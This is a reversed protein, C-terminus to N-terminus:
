SDCEPIDPSGEAASTRWGGDSLDSAAMVLCNQASNRVTIITQVDGDMDLNLEPIRCCVRLLQGSDKGLTIKYAFLIQKILSGKRFMSSDNWECVCSKGNNGDKTFVLKRGGGM